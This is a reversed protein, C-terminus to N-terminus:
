GAASSLARGLAVDLGRAVSTIRDDGFQGFLSSPLDYEFRAAGDDTEFLMVRLPAYLGAALGYRTMTSATLPNGIEYQVANRREGYIGLLGGHDRSLFISLEPAAELRQKLRDTVGDALLAPIESDIPPVLAELAARADAFPKASEIVVHEVEITRRSMSVSM